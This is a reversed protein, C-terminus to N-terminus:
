PTAVPFFFPRPTNTIPRVSSRTSDGSSTRVNIARAASRRFTPSVLIFLCLERDCQTNVMLTRLRRTRVSPDCMSHAPFSCMTSRAPESHALDAPPPSPPASAARSRSRLFMLWLRKVSPRTMVSNFFPPLAFPSRMGYRSELSVRSNCSDSPPRHLVHTIAVTDGDAIDASSVSDVSCYACLACPMTLLGTAADMSLSLTSPKPGPRGAVARPSPAPPAPMVPWVCCSQASISVRM